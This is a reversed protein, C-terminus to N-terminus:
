VDCKVECMVSLKVNSTLIESHLLLFNLNQVDCPLVKFSIQLLTSLSFLMSRLDMMKNSTIIWGIVM